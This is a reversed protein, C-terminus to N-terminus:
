LFTHVTCLVFQLRTSLGNCTMYTYTIHVSFGFKRMLESNDDSEFLCVFLYIFLADIRIGLTAAIEIVADQSHPISGRVIALIVKQDAVRPAGRPAVLTVDFHCAVRM